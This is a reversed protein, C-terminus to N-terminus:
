ISQDKIQLEGCITVNRHENYEKAVAALRYDAKNKHDTIVQKVFDVLLMGSSLRKQMDQYTIM